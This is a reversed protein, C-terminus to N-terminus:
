RLDNMDSEQYMISCGFVGEIAFNETEARVPKASSRIVSDIPDCQLHRFAVLPNFVHQGVFISLHRRLAKAYEVM